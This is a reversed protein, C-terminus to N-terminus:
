NTLPVNIFAVRRRALVTSGAGISDVHIHTCALSAIVSLATLCIHVFAVGIGTYVVSAANVNYIPVHASTNFAIGAVFTLIVDVFTSVCIDTDM